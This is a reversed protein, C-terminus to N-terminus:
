YALSSIFHRLFGRSNSWFCTTQWNEHLERWFFGQFNFKKLKEILVQDPQDAQNAINPIKADYPSLTYFRTCSHLLINHSHTDIELSITCFLGSDPNQQFLNFLTRCDSAIKPTIIRTIIVKRNSKGTINISLVQRFLMVEM